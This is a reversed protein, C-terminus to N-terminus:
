GVPRAFVMRGAETQLTRTVEVELEEGVKDEAGEVVIMTGDELYGVGQGSEKGKQIIRVNVTEGPILIIRLSNALENVNLVTIGSVKAAKNLNFDVTALSAKERKALPILRQDVSGSDGDEERVEFGEEKKIEKLNELIDLGRRGKRRRLDDRSDAVSQLEELVFKPLIM